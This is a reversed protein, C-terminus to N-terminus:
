LYERESLVTPKTIRFHLLFIPLSRLQDCFFDTYLFHLLGILEAQKFDFIAKTTEKQYFYLLTQLRYCDIDSYPVKMLM